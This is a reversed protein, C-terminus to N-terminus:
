NVIEFQDPFFYDPERASIFAGIFRTLVSRGNLYEAVRYNYASRSIANYAGRFTDSYKFAAAMDSDSIGTKSSVNGAAETLEYFGAWMEMSASRKESIKEAAILERRATILAEAKDALEPYSRMITALGLAANAAENLHANIGPQTYGEDKLYVGDYFMAEVDRTMRNATGAVGSLTGAVAVAVTIM